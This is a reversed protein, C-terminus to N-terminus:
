GSIGGTEHLKVLQLNTLVMFHLFPRNKLNISQLSNHSTDTLKFNLVFEKFQLWSRSMACLRNLSITQRGPRVSHTTARFIGTKLGM